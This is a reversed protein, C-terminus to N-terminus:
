AGMELQELLPMLKHDIWDSSIVGSTRLRISGYKDIVFTEPTGTIGLDTAFDGTPDFLNYSFPNGHQLLWAQAKSLEDRYNLGYLPVSTRTSLAQWAAMDKSCYACWSAWVHIIAVEGLLQHETIIEGPAMVDYLAFSPLPANMARTQADANPKAQLAQYLLMLVLAFLLLPAVRTWDKKDTEQTM